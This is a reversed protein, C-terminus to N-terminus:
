DQIQTFLLDLEQLMFDAHIKYGDTQKQLLGEKKLQSMVASITERTSGVMLAIDYHTLQMHISQWQGSRTGKKESMKNLLFITRYRVDALAIQESIDNVDKLRESLLHIVKFAVDPKGALFQDFKNRDMVCVCSASLAEAFTTEDTLPLKDTRGFVNGDVLVDSTFQRGEHNMRYLRVQGRKLFYLRSEKDNPSVLVEGKPVTLMDSEDAIYALEEKALDEFINIDSLLELKNM